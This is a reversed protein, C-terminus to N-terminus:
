YTKCHLAISIVSSTSLIVVINSLLLNPSECYEISVLCLSTLFKCSSLPSDNWFSFVNNECIKTQSLVLSQCSWNPQVELQM